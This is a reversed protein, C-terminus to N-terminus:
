FVKREGAPDELGMRLKSENGNWAGKDVTQRKLDAKELHKM